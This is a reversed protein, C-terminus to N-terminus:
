DQDAEVLDVAGVSQTQRPIEGDAISTMQMLLERDMENSRFDVEGGGMLLHLGGPHDSALGGVYTASVESGASQVGRIRRREDNLGHGTNRLSSRTGSFWGLDDEFRSLKEGVFLTYSLG